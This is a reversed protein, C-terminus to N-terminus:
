RASAMLEIREDIADLANQILECFPDFWGVYSDLINKIERRLAKVVVEENKESKAALPDFKEMYM